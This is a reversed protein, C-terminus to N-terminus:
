DDGDDGEDSELVGEVAERFPGILFERVKAALGAAGSERISGELNLEDLKAFADDHGAGTATYKNDLSSRDTTCRADTTFKCTTLCSRTCSCSSVTGM